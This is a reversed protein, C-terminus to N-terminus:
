TIIIVPSTAGRTDLDVVAVFLTATAIPAFSVVAAANEVAVHAAFSTVQLRDVLFCFIFIIDGRGRRQMEGHMNSAFAINRRYCYIRGRGAVNCSM